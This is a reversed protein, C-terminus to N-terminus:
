VREVIFDRRLHYCYHGAFTWSVRAASLLLMLVREAPDYLPGLDSCLGLDGKRAATAAQSDEVSASTVEQSFFLFSRGFFILFPRGFIAQPCLSSWSNREETLSCNESQERSRSGCHRRHDSFDVETQEKAAETFFFDCLQDSNCM